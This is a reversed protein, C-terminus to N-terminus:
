ATQFGPDNTTEYVYDGLFLVADPADLLLEITRRDAACAAHTGEATSRYPCALNRLRFAEPEEVVDSLIGEEKLATAVEAVRQDLVPTVGLFRLGEVGPM